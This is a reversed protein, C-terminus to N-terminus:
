FLLLNLLINLIVDFNIFFIYQNLAFYNKFVRVDLKTDSVVIEATQRLFFEFRKLIKENCFFSSM